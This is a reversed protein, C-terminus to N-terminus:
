LGALTVGVSFDSSTENNAMYAKMSKIEGGKEKIEKL